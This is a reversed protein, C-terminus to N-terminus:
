WSAVSYEVEASVLLMRIIEKSAIPQGQELWNVKKSIKKTMPQNM